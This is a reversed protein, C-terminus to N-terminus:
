MSMSMSMSTSMSASMQLFRPLTEEIGEGHKANMNLYRQMIRNMTEEDLEKTLDAHKNAARLHHQQRQGQVTAVLALVLLFLSAFQKM